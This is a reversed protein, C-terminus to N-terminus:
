LFESKWYDSEFRLGAVRPVEEQPLARPPALSVPWEMIDAQINNHSVNCQLAFWSLSDHYASKSMAAKLQEELRVIVAPYRSVPSRPDFAEQITQIGRLMRVVHPQRAEAPMWQLALALTAVRDAHRAIPPDRELKNTFIRTVNIQLVVM